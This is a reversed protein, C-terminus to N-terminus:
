NFHITPPIGNITFAKKLEEAIVQKQSIPGVVSDYVPYAKIGLELMRRLFQCMCRSESNMLERGIGTYFYPAINEHKEELRYLLENASVIGAHKSNIESQVAQRAKERWPCNLAMLMSKKALDRPTHFLEYADETLPKQLKEAYLIFPLCNKVDVEVVPENNITLLKRDEKPMLIVSSGTFRGDKFFDEKFTAYLMNNPEVTKNYEWLVERAEEVYDPFSEPTFTKTRILGERMTMFKINDPVLALLKETPTITSATGNKGFRYGPSVIVYEKIQLTNCIESVGSPLFFDPKDKRGKYGSKHLQIYLPEQKLALNLVITKFTRKHRTTKSLPYVEVYLDNILADNESTIWENLKRYQIKREPILWSLGDIDDDWKENDDEGAFEIM